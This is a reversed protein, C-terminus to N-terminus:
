GAFERLNIQSATADASLEKKGKFLEDWQIFLCVNQQWNIAKPILRIMKITKEPSINGNRKALYSLLIGLDYPLQTNVGTLFPRVVEATTRSKVGSTIALKYMRALERHQVGQGVGTSDAKTNTQTRQVLSPWRAKMHTSM